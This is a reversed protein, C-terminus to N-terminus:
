VERSKEVCKNVMMVVEQGEMRLVLVLNPETVEKRYLGSRGIIHALGDARCETSCCFERSPVFIVHRLFPICIGASHGLHHGVRGVTGRGIAICCLCLGRGLAISYLGSLICGLDHAGKLHHIQSAGRDLVLISSSNGDSSHLSERYM